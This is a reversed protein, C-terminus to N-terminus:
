QTSSAIFHQWEAPTNLNSLEGLNSHTLKLPKLQSLWRKMSWDTHSPMSLNARASLLLESTSYLFLPLFMTEYFCSQQTQCGQRILNTLTAKTLLPMDIPVVLWHANPQTTLAAEIGVLPGQGQYNDEIDCGSVYVQAAGSELLLGKMHTLLSNGNRLTLESKPRGMRSSQGGNLVLGLLKKSM